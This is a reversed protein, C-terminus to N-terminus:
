GITTWTQFISLKRLSTNKMTNDYITMFITLKGNVDDSSEIQHWKKMILELCFTDMRSNPMHRTKKRRTQRKVVFDKSAKPALILAQHTIATKARRVTTWRSPPWATPSSMVTHLDTRTAVDCM